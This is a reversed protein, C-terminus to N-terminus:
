PRVKRIVCGFPERMEYNTIIGPCQLLDFLITVPYRQNWTGMRPLSISVHLSFITSRFADACEFGLRWCGMLNLLHAIKSLSRVSLPAFGDDCLTRDEIWSLWWFGDRHGHGRKSVNRAFPFVM